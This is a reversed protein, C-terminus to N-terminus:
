ATQLRHETKQHNLATLALPTKIKPPTRFREPHAAYLADVTTQRQHHIQIWTGDHISAPTHGELNSHRHETNYTTVFNQAWARAQELTKFYRPYGFGGYKATKFMSEAYPNDNSVRPRNKSATIGLLAFLGTLTRSTMAAGRDSHVLQPSLEEAAVAQEFMDRALDDNEHEEVRWAIIKRSFVDMVMYFCYSVGRYPGPLMTIDWCWVQGVADATWQPMAASSRKRRPRVPRVHQLHAVCLRYWTKLSAVPTGADLAEYYAQHVSKDDLFAAAQMALIEDREAPCLWSASRRLGQPVPDTVAPRPNRRYHWTATSIGLLSLTKNQSLGAAGLQGVLTNEMALFSQM